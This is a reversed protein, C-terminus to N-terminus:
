LFRCESWLSSPANDLSRKLPGKPTVYILSHYFGLFRLLFFLESDRSSRNSHIISIPYRTALCVLWEFAHVGRMRQVSVDGRVAFGQGM